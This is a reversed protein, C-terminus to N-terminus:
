ITKNICGPTKKQPPPTPPPPCQLYCSPTPPLYLLAFGQTPFVILFKKNTQLVRDFASNINNIKKDMSNNMYSFSLLVTCYIDYRSFYKSDDTITQVLCYEQYIKRLLFYWLRCQKSNIVCTIFKLSTKVCCEKVSNQM